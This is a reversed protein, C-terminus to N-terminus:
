HTHSEADHGLPQQLPVVQTAYEDSDDDCHPVLPAAHWTQPFPTQSLVVPVHEHSAVM